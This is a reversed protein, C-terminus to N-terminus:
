LLPKCSFREYNAFLRQTIEARTEIHLKESTDRPSEDIPFRHGREMIPHRFAKHM